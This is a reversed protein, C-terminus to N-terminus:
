NTKLGQFASVSLFGNVALTVIDYFMLQGSLAKYFNHFVYEPCLNLDYEQCSSYVPINSAAYAYLVLAIVAMGLSAIGAFLCKRLLQRSPTRESAMSLSGALLCVCGGCLPCIFLFRMDTIASYTPAALLIQFLGLLIAMVAVVEPDYFRFLRHSKPLDTNVSATQTTSMEFATEVYERFKGRLPFTSNIFHGLSLPAYRPSPAPCVLFRQLELTLIKLTPGWCKRQWFSICLLVKSNFKTACKCSFAPSEVFNREPQTANTM